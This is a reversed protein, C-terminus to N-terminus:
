DQRWRWVEEFHVLLLKLLSPGRRSLSCGNFMHLESGCITSLIAKVIVKGQGAKPKPWGQLRLDCAGYYVLAKTEKGSKAPSTNKEESKKGKKV